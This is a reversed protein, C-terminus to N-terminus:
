YPCTCPAAPGGFLSSSSPAPPPTSPLALPRQVWPIFPSAAHARAPPSSPALPSGPARRLVWSGGGAGLGTCWTGTRATDGKDGVQLPSLEALSPHLPHPFPSSRPERGAWCRLAPSPGHKRHPLLEWLLPFAPFLRWPLAPRQGGQSQACPSGEPGLVRLLLRAATETGTVCRSSAGAGAAPAPLSPSSPIWWRGDWEKGLRRPFPSWCLGCCGGGALFPPSLLLRNPCWCKWAPILCGRALQHSVCPSGIFTGIPNGRGRFSGVHSPFAPDGARNPRGSPTPPPARPLTPPRRACRRTPSSGRPLSRRRRRSAPARGATCLTSRPSLPLSPTLNLAELHVSSHRFRGENEGLTM